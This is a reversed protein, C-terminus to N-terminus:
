QEAQECSLMSNENGYKIVHQTPILQDGIHLGIPASEHCTHCSHCFFIAWDPM